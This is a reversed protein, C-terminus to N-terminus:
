ENEEEEYACADDVEDTRDDLDDTGDAQEDSQDDIRGAEVIVGHPGHAARVGVVVEDIRALNAPRVYEADNGEEINQNQGHQGKQEAHLLRRHAFHSFHDIRLVGQILVALEVFGVVITRERLLRQRRARQM